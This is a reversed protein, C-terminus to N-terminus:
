FSERTTSVPFETTATTQELEGSSGGTTSLNDVNGGDDTVFGGTTTQGGGDNDGENTVFGSTTTQGGEEGNTVLGDDGTSIIDACM